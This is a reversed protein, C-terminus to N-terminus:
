SDERVHVTLVAGKPGATYTRGNWRIDKRFISRIFVFSVLISCPLTSLLWPGFPISFPTLSRLLFFAVVGGGLYILAALIMWRRTRPPLALLFRLYLIGLLILALGYPIVWPNRLPGSTDLITRLPRILREHFGFWEDFALYFFAIALGLWYYIFAEQRQRKVLYIFGLLLGAATSVVSSPIPLLIDSGLLASLVVAVLISHGSAADLFNRTWNEIFEGFLFISDPYHFFRNCLASAM